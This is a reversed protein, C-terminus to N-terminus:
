SKNPKVGGRRGLGFGVRYLDPMDTRGDKKTTFFGIRALDNKMGLWGQDINQPPLKNATISSLGEPFEQRWKEEIQRFECPLSLGQLPKMIHRVWPYDEAIEAVRIESAKQVGTKISEYHLAVTHEPHKDRSNEASERIAVLFSRPSTLGQGDALHSVIWVYPVGRRPNTGMWAGALLEFLKRQQETNRKLEDHIRWIEDGENPSHLKDMFSDPKYNSAGGLPLFGLLGQQYVGRLCAGHGGDANCLIQWLLGHLDSGLWTLEVKTALLKSADPFNMVARNFQDERLFVKAYLCSFSKLWLVARLLDRVINDMGNWDHSTRDLADFIILGAKGTEQFITNAAQVLRALGEPNEKVWIVTDKWEQCPISQDVVKSLWRTVVARWIDYAEFKAGILQIFIDSNPYDDIEEKVSFGIHVETNELEPLDQKLKKRLDADALASTWFSKGVGRAGVVLNCDLRLAKIHASPLYMFRAEISEGFNSSSTPLVSIMAERIKKVDSM